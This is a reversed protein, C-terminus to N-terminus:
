IKAHRPTHTTHLLVSKRCVCMGTELISLPLLEMSLLQSVGLQGEATELSDLPTFLAHLSLVALPLHMIACHGCRDTCGHPWFVDDGKCQTWFGQSLHLTLIALELDYISPKNTSPPTPSYPHGLSYKRQTMMTLPAAVPHLMLSMWGQNSQSVRCHRKWPHYPTVVFVWISTNSHGLLWQYPPTVQLKPPSLFYVLIEQVPTYLLIKFPSIPGRPTMRGKQFRADTPCSSFVVKLVTAHSPIHKSGKLHPLIFVDALWIWQTM